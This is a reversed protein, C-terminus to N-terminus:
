PSAFRGFLPLQRRMTLAQMPAFYMLHKCQPVGDDEFLDGVLCPLPLEARTHSQSSWPHKYCQQFAGNCARAAGQYFNGCAGRCQALPTMATACLDLLGERLAPM